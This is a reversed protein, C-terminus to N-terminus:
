NKYLIGLKKRWKKYGRKKVGVKKKGWSKKLHQYLSFNEPFEEGGAFTGIRRIKNCFNGGEGNPRFIPM